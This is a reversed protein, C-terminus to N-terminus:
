VRHYFWSPIDIYIWTQTIQSFKEDRYPRAITIGNIIECQDEQSTTGKSNVLCVRSITHPRYMQNFSRTRLYAFHGLTTICIAGTTIFWVCTYRYKRGHIVTNAHSASQVCVCMRRAACNWVNVCGRVHSDRLLSFRTCIRSRTKSAMHM